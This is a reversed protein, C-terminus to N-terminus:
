SSCPFTPTGPSKGSARWFKMAVGDRCISTWFLCIRCGTWRAATKKWKGRMAEEGDAIVQLEAHIDHVAIAEEVLFVDAKNDEVVLIHLLRRDDSENRCPSSSPLDKGRNRSSGSAGAIDNWSESASLWDLELVPMNMTATSASSYDLSESTTNPNSVWATIKYGFCGIAATPKKLASPFRRGRGAAISSRM